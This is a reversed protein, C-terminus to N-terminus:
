KEGQLARRGKDLWGIGFVVTGLLKINQMIEPDIKIGFMELIIVTAIVIAGAHRKYGKLKLFWKM